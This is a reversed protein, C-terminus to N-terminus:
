FRRSVDISARRVACTVGTNNARFQLVLTTTGTAAFVLYRIGSFMFYNTNNNTQQISEAVVVDDTQNWVRVAVQKNNANSNFEASYEIKYTQGAVGSINIVVKNQTNAPNADAPYTQNNSSTEADNESFANGNLGSSFMLSEATVKKKKFSDSSDEILIIDANEPAVLELFSNIDNAKQRVSIPDLYNLSNAQDLITLGDDVVLTGANILVRIEDNRSIEDYGYNDSINLQGSAPVVISGMSVITVPSGTTNVLIITSQSSAM